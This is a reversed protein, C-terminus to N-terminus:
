DGTKAHHKQEAESLDDSEEKEEMLDLRQRNVKLQTSLADVELQKRM